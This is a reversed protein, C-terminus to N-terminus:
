FRSVAETFGSTQLFCLLHWDSLLDVLKQRVEHLDDEAKGKGKGNSGSAEGLPVLIRHGVIQNVSSLFSQLNQDHLGQRNEIAFSWSRFLPKAEKPFGHTM